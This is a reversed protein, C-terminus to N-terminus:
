LVKVVAKILCCQFQTGKVKQYFTKIKRQM